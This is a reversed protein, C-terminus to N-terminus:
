YQAITRNSHLFLTLALKTTKCFTYNDSPMKCLHLIWHLLSNPPTSHGNNGNSSTHFISQIKNLRCLACCYRLMTACDVTCVLSCVAELYKIKMHIIQPEKAKDFDFHFSITTGWCFLLAMTSISLHSIKWTYHIDVYIENYIAGYLCKIITFKNNLYFRFKTSINSPSFLLFFVVRLYLAFSHAYWHLLMAYFVFFAFPVYPLLNTGAEDIYVKSYQFLFTNKNTQKTPIEQIMVPFYKPPIKSIFLM